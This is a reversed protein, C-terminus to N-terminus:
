WVQAEGVVLGLLLPNDQAEDGHGPGEHARSLDEGEAVASGVEGGATGTDDEGAGVALVAQKCPGGRALLITAEAVDVNGKQAVLVMADALVVTDQNLLLADRETTKEEDVGGTNHALDGDIVEGNSAANILGETQDISELEGVLVALYTQEMHRTRPGSVLVSLDAGGVPGGAVLCDLGGGLAVLGVECLDVGVGLHGVGGGVTRRGSVLGWLVTTSVRCLFRKLTYVKLMLTM